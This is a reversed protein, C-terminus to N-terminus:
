DSKFLAGVSGKLMNRMIADAFLPAISVEKIKPYTEYYKEDRDITDTIVVEDLSSNMIRDEAKEWKGTKKNKYHSIIGHTACASVGIAGKDLLADTANVLTGSTDVIDDPAVVYRHKVNGVVYLVESEGDEPRRKDIFGSPFDPTLKKAMERARPTGGSDPSMVVYKIKKPRPKNKYYEVFIPMAELNDVPRDYFGQEQGAHMDVRMIRKAWPVISNAMAKASIPTRGKVKRDKREYPNEPLIVTINEASARMLADLSLILAMYGINPDEEGNYGRFSHILYIDKERVSEEVETEIEGNNFFKHTIKEFPVKIGYKNELSKHVRKAFEYDYEIGNNGRDLYTSRIILADGMSGM